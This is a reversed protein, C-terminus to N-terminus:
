KRIIKSTSFFGGGALCVTYTGPPLAGLDLRRPQGAEGVLETCFVTRGLADSLVMTVKKGEVLPLEIWLSGHTPNPFLRPLWGESGGTFGVAPEATISDALVASCGNADTVTVIYTGSTVASLDEDTSGNNWAFGYGPTGGTVSLDLAGDTAGPGSAPTQAATLLLPAPEDISWTPATASCGNADYLTLAYIGTSLGSLSPTTAGNDWQFAYPPTGGTPSPDLAGDALGHCSIDSLLPAWTVAPPEGLAITDTSLSCGTGDTLTAWYNGAPLGILANATAGTNWAISL